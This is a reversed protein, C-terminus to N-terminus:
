DGSQNTSEETSALREIEQDTMRETAAFCEEMHTIALEFTRTQQLRGAWSRGPHLADWWSIEGQHRGSGPDHNGFGDLCLNWLPRYHQILFREAMTVWLPTVVLFRCIFDELRLNEAERISRVHQGIRNYLTASAQQVEITAGRRSGPPDAKGVYIPYQADLSVVRRYPEFNGVYFLAYVGAGQFRRELPLNFPGRQMLELVCNRTLNEYDLPNYEAFENM